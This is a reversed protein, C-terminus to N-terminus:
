YKRFIKRTYFPNTGENFKIKLNKHLIEKDSYFVEFHLHPYNAFGTQGSFGILQGKFIEQGRKVTIGRFKLHAYLSYEGGTHKLIIGNTEEMLDEGGLNNYRSERFDVKGERAALIPTGIPMFWDFAYINGTQIHTPAIMRKILGNNDPFFPLDYYGKSFSCTM